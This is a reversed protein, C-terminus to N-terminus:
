FFGHAQTPRQRAYRDVIGGLLLTWVLLYLVLAWAIPAMPRQGDLLGSTNSLVAAFGILSPTFTTALGATQTRFEQWWDYDVGDAAANAALSRRLQGEISRRLTLAFPLALLLTIAYTGALIAPARFVRHMGDRFAAIVM